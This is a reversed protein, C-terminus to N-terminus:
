EVQVGTVAKPSERKRVAMWNLFAVAIVAILILSKRLDIQTILVLCVAVGVLALFSGGPLHFWAGGPQKRRLVPLAACGAGYCFLRAAASLTVNWTFNGLLAFLWVLMAFVGISFYPTRFRPHVAAFISPFDKHEALAFTLRPVALMNASLYGYISVLAGVAILAAGGNGMALRAVDALPRESQAANPLARIVVWQIVSYLATCTILAALLGFATDRRPNTAESMPTLAGEFGGYAFGLILIAKLWSHLGGSGTTASSVAHGSLVYVAGAMAVLLLPVLKAVTFINSMKAGARVGGFNTYALVGILLTLVCFRPVPDMARPWFERLYVVFLNANAAPATLRVLWLMWGMEIGLLRGFAVRSYLYPGGTQTFRSAVEAFCAMIVGMAGGALLVAYPSAAGLLRALDSPLGFIGSGIISNIVLAAMSWRGIARVLTVPGSEPM